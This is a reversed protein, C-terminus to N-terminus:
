ERGYFQYLATVQGAWFEWKEDSTAGQRLMGLQQAYSYFGPGADNEDLYNVLASIMLGTDPRNLDVILGLLHGM